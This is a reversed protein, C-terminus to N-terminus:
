KAYNGFIVELVQNFKHNEYVKLFRQLNKSVIEFGESIELWVKPVFTKQLNKSVWGKFCLKEFNKLSAVKPFLPKWLNESTLFRRTLRHNTLSPEGVDLGTAYKNIYECLKQPPHKQIIAFKTVKFLGSQNLHNM